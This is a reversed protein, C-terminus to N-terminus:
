AGDLVYGTGMSVKGIPLAELTQLNMDSFRVGCELLAKTVKEVGHMKVMAGFARHTQPTISDIDQLHGVGDLVFQWDKTKAAHTVLVNVVARDHIGGTRELYLCLTKMNCGAALIQPLVTTADLSARPCLSIFRLAFLWDRQGVLPWITSADRRTLKAVEMIDLAIDVQNHELAASLLNAKSVYSYPMMAVAEFGVTEILRRCASIICGQVYVSNLRVASLAAVALESEEDRIFGWFPVWEVEDVKAKEQKVKHKMRDHFRLMLEESSVRTEQMLLKLLDYSDVPPAKWPHTEYLKLATLWDNKELANYFESPLPRPISAGSASAYRLFRHRLFM